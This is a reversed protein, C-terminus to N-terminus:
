EDHEEFSYIQKFFASARHSGTEQDLTIPSICKEFLLSWGSWNDRADLLGAKGFRDELDPLIMVETGDGFSESGWENQEHCNFFHYVSFEFLRHDVFHGSELHAALGELPVVIKSVCGAVPIVVDLAELTYYARNFASVTNANVFAGKTAHRQEQARFSSAQKSGLNEVTILHALLEYQCITFHRALRLLAYGLLEITLDRQVKTLSSVQRLGHGM